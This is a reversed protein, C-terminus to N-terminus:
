STPAGPDGRDDLFPSLRTATREAAGRHSEIYTRASTGSTERAEDDSLWTLLIRALDRADGVEVGAGLSELEDAARANAHRPGFTMPVGAAAPELVSHLGHDHFGGGVYAARAVTYLQALVGVRDVVVVDASGASGAEEVPGLRRVALGRRELAAELPGLHVEDPEHPAVVLRAEPRVDRVRDWAEVLVTEDPPWTSGAVVVPRVPEGSEGRFLRIWPSEPDTADIRRAASDIGPDGTVEIREPPVGLGQEFRRADPEAIALVRTLSAFTPGLLLRAPWRLRSSGAPLTAAVLVTPISRTRCAHALGPWVETKTFVLLDPVLADLVPGVAGPDDWPLYDAVDVPMTRALGVASPSFHTFVSQLDPARPRLADLVARAQLGEGV